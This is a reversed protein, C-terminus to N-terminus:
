HHEEGRRIVEGQAAHRAAEYRHQEARAARGAATDEGSQSRLRDRWAVWGFAGGVVLVGVGLVVWTTM